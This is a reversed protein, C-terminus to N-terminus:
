RILGISTSLVCWLPTSRTHPIMQRLTRIPVTYTRIDFCKHTTTCHLTSSVPHAPSSLVTCYPVNCKLITSYLANCYLVTCYLVTCYLVTCYQVSCLVVCCCVACRMLAAGRETSSKAELFTCHAAVACKLHFVRRCLGYFCGVTAGKQSCLACAIRAGRTPLPPLLPPLTSSCHSYCNGVLSSVWYCYFCFSYLFFEHIIV